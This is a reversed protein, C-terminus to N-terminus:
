STKIKKYDKSKIRKYTDFIDNQYLYPFGIRNVVNKWIEDIVQIIMKFDEKIGKFFKFFLEQLEMCDPKVKKHFSYKKMLNNVEDLTIFNLHGSHM